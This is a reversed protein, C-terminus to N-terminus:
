SAVATAEQAMLHLAEPAIDVENPWVITNGESDFTVKNFYEPDRLPAFVGGYDLLYSLDVEAAVGDKFRLWVSCGQTWRAEVLRPM